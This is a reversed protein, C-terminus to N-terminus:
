NCLDYGDEIFNVYQIFRRWSEDVEAVMLGYVYLDVTKCIFDEIIELSNAYNLDVEFHLHWEEEGCRSHPEFSNMYITTNNIWMYGLYVRGRAYTGCVDQDPWSWRINIDSDKVEFSTGPRVKLGSVIVQLLNV